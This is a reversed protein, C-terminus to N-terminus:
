APPKNLAVIPVLLVDLGNRYLCIYHAEPFVWDILDLYDLNGPSKDCWMAKGRAACYRGLLDHTVRRLETRTHEKCAEPDHCDGLVLATTRSLTRYLADLTAGLLIEGPSCIAPHTDLIYRLLTSGSRECSLLFIPSTDM